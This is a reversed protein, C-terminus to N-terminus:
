GLLEGVTKTDGKLYLLDAQSGTREIISRLGRKKKISSAEKLHALNEQPLARAELFRAAVARKLLGAGKKSRVLVTNWGSIGEAAGVSIDAFEATMDICSSCAPRIFPRVEDLPVTITRSATRVELVNAPPPPIDIKAIRELPVKASLYRVFDAYLFAWTCFLGIKLGVSKVSSDVGAPPVAMKSLALVQCPTGVVAMKKKKGEKAASNFAGVTPAAVYSSGACSLVEEITSALVEEPLGCSGGRTLVAGDILGEGLAFVTLATVVGGYQGKSAIVGDRARAMHVAEIKGMSAWDYPSGFVARHIEDLDVSFRPCFARCRGEPLTCVDRLVIRGRHAVLYPCMGTCAGCLTCLGGKLVKAELEASAGQM